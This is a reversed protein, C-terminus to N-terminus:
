ILLNDNINVPEKSIEINPKSTLEDDISRINKEYNDDHPM